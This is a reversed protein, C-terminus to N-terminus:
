STYQEPHPVMVDIRVSSLESPAAGFMQSAPTHKVTSQNGQVGRSVPNESPLRKIPLSIRNDFSYTTQEIKM